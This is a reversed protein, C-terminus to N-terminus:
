HFSKGFKHLLLGVGIIPISLTADHVATTFVSSRWRVRDPQNAVIGVPLQSVILSNWSVKRLGGM